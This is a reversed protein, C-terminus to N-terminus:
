LYSGLLMRPAACAVLIIEADSGGLASLRHPVRADFHAADGPSLTYSEDALALHLTGSLVFLWEEGDHRYMEGGERHASVLVRIPQMNAAHERQSLPTYTLGNGQQPPVAGARLVACPKSAASPETFLAALAVDYAQALSLLSALSPQREGDEIRSLYSKSLGTRRALEDLTWGHRVRLDRVRGGLRGMESQTLDSQVGTDDAVTM